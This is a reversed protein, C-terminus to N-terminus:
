HHCNKQTIADDFVVVAVITQDKKPNYGDINEYDEDKDRFFETFVKLDNPTKSVVAQRKIDTFHEFEKEKTVKIFFFIKNIDEHNSSLNWLSNDKWVEFFRHTKWAESM